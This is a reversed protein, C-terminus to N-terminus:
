NELNINWFAKIMPIELNNKKTALYIKRPITEKLTIIDFDTEYKLLSSEPLLAIGLGKEIFALITQNTKVIYRTNPKVNYKKFIRSMYPNPYHESIIFPYEEIVKISVEKPLKYKKPAILKVRDTFLFIREHEELFEEILLGIDIIGDELWKQIEYYHGEKIFIQINPYEMAYRKILDPLLLASASTFSGIILKGTQLNNYTNVLNELRRNQSLVALIEPRVREGFRSLEVGQKHRIFLDGGFEEELTKISKSVAAQSMNLLVSAKSFSMTESVVKFVEYKVLSM